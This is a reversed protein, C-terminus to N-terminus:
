PLDSNGGHEIFIRQRSIFDEMIWPLNNPNLRRMARRPLESVIQLHEPSVWVLKLNQKEFLVQIQFESGVHRYTAIDGLEGNLHPQSVLGHCIVPCGECPVPTVLDKRVQMTRENAINRPNTIPGIIVLTEVNNYLQLDAQCRKCVGDLVVMIYRKKCKELLANARKANNHEPGNIRCYITTMKMATREAIIGKKCDFLNNVSWLIAGINADMYIDCDARLSSLRMRSRYERVFVQVEEYPKEGIGNEGWSNGSEEWGEGYEVEGKGPLDIAIQVNELKVRKSLFDKNEFCVELRFGTINNQYSIVDGV